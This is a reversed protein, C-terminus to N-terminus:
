RGVKLRLWTWINKWLISYQYYSQMLIMLMYIWISPM